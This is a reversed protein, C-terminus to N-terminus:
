ASRRRDARRPRPGAPQAAGGPRHRGAPAPGGVAHRGAAYPDAISIHLRDFLAQAEAAMAPKTSCCATSAARQRPLRQRRRQPQRVPGPGALRGGRGPGPGRHRRLGATARGARRHRRRGRLYPRHVPRPDVQRRRERRRPGPDRGAQPDLDVGRLVWQAGFRKHVGRVQLVPPPRAGTPTAGADQRDPMSRITVCKPPGSTQRRHPQTRGGVRARPSLSPPHGCRTSAPRQSRDLHRLRGDQGIHRDRQTQDSPQKGKPANSM